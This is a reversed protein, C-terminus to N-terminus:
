GADTGSYAHCTELACRDEYISCVSAGSDYCFSAWTKRCSNACATRDLQGYCTLQENCVPGQLHSRTLSKSYIPSPCTMTNFRATTMAM